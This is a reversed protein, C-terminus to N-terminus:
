GWFASSRTPSSKHGPLPRVSSPRSYYLSWPAPTPNKCERVALEWLSSDWEGQGLEAASKSWRQFFFAIKLFWASRMSLDLKVIIYYDWQYIHEPDPHSQALEISLNFILIPRELSM